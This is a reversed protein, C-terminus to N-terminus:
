DNAASSVGRRATPRGTKTAGGSFAVSLDKAGKRKAERDMSADIAALLKSVTNNRRAIPNREYGTRQFFNATPVSERMSAPMMLMDFGNGDGTLNMLELEAARLRREYGKSRAFVVSDVLKQTQLLPGIDIDLNLAHMARGKPTRGLEVHESWAVPVTRTFDIMRRLAAIKGDLRKKREGTAGDGKSKLAKIFTDGKEALLGISNATLLQNYGLATSIARAGPKAYELGAQVDYKGNGGSEFAYIRVVQDRTLGAGAAIGAYARKFEIESKPRQPVFGFHEAASKLFDAVVPIYRTPAPPSDEPTETPDVPRRPGSYVPPQTLVYDDFLTEQKDRRKVARARRKEGIANWYASAEEDYRQRALTYEQLKRLYDARAAPPPLPTEAAPKAPEISHAPTGGCLGLLLVATVLMRRALTPHFLSEPMIARQVRMEALFPDDEIYGSRGTM